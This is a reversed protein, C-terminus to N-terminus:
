VGVVKALAYNAVALDFAVAGSCLTNDHESGRHDVRASCTQFARSNTFYHQLPHISFVLIAEALHIIHRHEPGRASHSEM